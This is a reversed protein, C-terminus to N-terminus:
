AEVSGDALEVEFGLYMNHSGNTLHEWTSEKRWREIIKPKSQRLVVSPLLGCDDCYLQLCPLIREDNWFASEVEVWYIM